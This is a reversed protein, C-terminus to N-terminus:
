TILGGGNSEGASLETDIDEDGKKAGSGDVLSDLAGDGLL